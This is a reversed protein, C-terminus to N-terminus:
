NLSKPIERKQVTVDKWGAPGKAAKGGQSFKWGMCFKIDKAEGGDKTIILPKPEKKKEQRGTPSKGPFAATPKSVVKDEDGEMMVKVEHRHCKSPPKANPDAPAEALTGEPHPGRGRIEAPKDKGENTEVLRSAPAPAVMLGMREMRGAVSAGQAGPAAVMALALVACSLLRSTM